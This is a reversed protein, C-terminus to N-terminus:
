SLNLVTRMLAVVFVFTKKRKSSDYSQQNPISIIDIDALERHTLLFNVTSILKEKSHSFHNFHSMLYESLEKWKTTFM